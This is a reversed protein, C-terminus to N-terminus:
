VGGVALLVAFRFDGSKIRERRLHAEVTAPLSVSHSCSVAALKATAGHRAAAAVARPRREVGPPDDTVRVNTRHDLLELSILFPFDALM